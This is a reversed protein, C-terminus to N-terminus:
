INRNEHICYCKVRIKPSHTIFDHSGSLKMIKCYRRLNYLFLSVTALKPLCFTLCFFALSGFLLLTVDLNFLNYTLLSPVRLSVVVTIHVNINNINTTDNNHYQFASFYYFNIIPDILWIIGEYWRLSCLSPFGFVLM